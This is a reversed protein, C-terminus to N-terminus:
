AFRTDPEPFIFAVIASPTPLVSLEVEVAVSQVRRLAM